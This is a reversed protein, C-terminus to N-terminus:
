SNQLHRIMIIKLETDHWLVSWIPPCSKDIEILITCHVHNILNRNSLHYTSTAKSLRTQNNGPDYFLFSAFKNLGTLLGIMLLKLSMLRWSHMFNRRELIQLCVPLFLLQCKDLGKNMLCSRFFEKFCKVSKRILFYTQVKDPKLLYKFKIFKKEYSSRFCSTLKTLNSFNELFLTSM